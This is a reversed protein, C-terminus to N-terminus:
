QPTIKFTGSQEGNASTDAAVGVLSGFAGGGVAGTMEAAFQEGRPSVAFAYTKGAEANFKVTYSGPGCWCSVTLVV